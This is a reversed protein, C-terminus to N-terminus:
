LFLIVLLNFWWLILVGFIMYVTQSLGEGLCPREREQIFTMLQRRKGNKKSGVGLGLMQKTNIIGRAVQTM